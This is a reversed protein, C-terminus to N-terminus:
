KVNMIVAEKVYHTKSIKWTIFIITFGGIGM